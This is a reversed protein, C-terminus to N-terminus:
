FCLSGGCSSNLLKSWCAAEIQENSISDTCIGEQNMSYKHPQIMWMLPAMADMTDCTQPRCDVGRVRPEMVQITTLVWCACIICVYIFIYIYIYVYTHIYTAHITSPTQKYQKDFYNPENQDTTIYNHINTYQRLQLFNYSRCYIYIYINIYIYICICWIDENHVHEDEFWKLKEGTIKLLFIFGIM